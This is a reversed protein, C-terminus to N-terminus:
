GKARPESEGQPNQRPQQQGLPLMGSPFDPVPPLPFYQKKPAPAPQQPMFAPYGLFPAFGVPFQHSLVAPPIPQKTRKGKPLPTIVTIPIPEQHTIPPNLPHIHNNFWIRVKRPSWGAKFANLQASSQAVITQREQYTGRAYLPLYHNFITLEAISLTRPPSDDVAPRM